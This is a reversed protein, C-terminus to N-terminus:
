HAAPGSSLAPGAGGHEPSCGISPSADSCGVGGRWEGCADVPNPILGLLLRDNFDMADYVGDADAILTDFLACIELLQHWDRCSRALRSVEIGLVLGVHGLGVEAVLRQFGPRDATSAGSRGLDDDIVLVQARPWGLQCAREVLAYQLRTSERHQEVQRPTSQRVYVVAQRDRHRDHVKGPPPSM